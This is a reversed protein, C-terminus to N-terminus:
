NRAFLKDLEAETAQYVNVRGTCLVEDGCSIKGQCSGFRGDNMLAATEVKLECGAKFSPSKCELGRAGLVMGLPIVTKGAQKNLFGSWVGVCQSILELAFYAPLDGQEDLFPGLCSDEAVRVRCETNIEDVSIVEDLLVMPPRHPLYAVPKEFIM